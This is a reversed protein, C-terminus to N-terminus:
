AHSAFVKQLVSDHYTFVRGFRPDRTEGIPLGNERSLHACQKGIRSASRWDVSQGILRAYGMVTFHRNEPQTRAEVIAINEELREMKHAQQQQSHQVADLQQLAHILAATQPNHVQAATAKMQRECAIFYQRAQKGKANREVMSLEKAMDLTLAYEKAPRGATTNEGMKPFVEVFDAGEIFSYQEIRSKLWTSFDKGVELFAHLARANVTPVHAAGVARTFIPILNTNM